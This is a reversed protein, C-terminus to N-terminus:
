CTASKPRPPRPRKPTRFIIRRGAPPLDDGGADDFNTKAWEAKAQALFNTVKFEVYNVQVRDPLRYEALYNTYFQAIAEPTVPSRVVLYNSASFFVIQASLEQHERQYIAAAEQPTILAGALGITQICNSSSM